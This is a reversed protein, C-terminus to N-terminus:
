SSAKPPAKVPRIYAIGDGERWRSWVGGAHLCEGVFRQLATNAEPEGFKPLSM